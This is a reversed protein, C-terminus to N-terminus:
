EIGVSGDSYTIVWYGKGTGCDEHYEKDIIILESGEQGAEESGTVTESLAVGEDRLTTTEMDAAPEVDVLEASMEKAAEPMVVPIDEQSSAVAASIADHYEPILAYMVLNFVFVTFVTGTFILLFTMGKRM